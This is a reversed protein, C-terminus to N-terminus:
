SLDKEWESPKLLYQDPGNKTQVQWLLESPNMM